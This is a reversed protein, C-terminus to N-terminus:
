HIIYSAGITAVMPSLSNPQFNPWQQAEVDIVRLNIKHLIRYEVGGGFAIINYSSSLNANLNTITSRGFLGKGYVTLKRRRYTVRPGIMYTNESIDGPTTIEGFHTSFEVGVWKSFDYDAFGSFGIVTGQAYDPNIAAVGAGVQIRNNQNATYIAQANLAPIAVLLSACCVFLNAWVNKM